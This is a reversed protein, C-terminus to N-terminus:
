IPHSAARPRPATSPPSSTCSQPRAPPGHYGLNLDAAPHDALNDGVGPLHVRVPIGVLAPARGPRDGLAAPDRPQWVNRRLARGLGAEVLPRRGAAPRRHRAAGHFVVETVQASPCSILNPRRRELPSLRGVHDRADTSSSSMPMRGTALPALARQSGGGVSAQPSHRWGVIRRAAGRTTRLRRPTRSDDPDAAIGTGPSARRLRRGDELRRFCPLVDEFAWGANGLAAWEDYDAPCGPARVPDGM